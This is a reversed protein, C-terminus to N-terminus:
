LSHLRPESTGHHRGRGERLKETGVWMRIKKQGAKHTLSKKGDVWSPSELPTHAGQEEQKEQRGGM